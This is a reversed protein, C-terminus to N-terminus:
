PLGPRIDGIPLSGRAERWEFFNSQEAPLLPSVDRFPLHGVLSWGDATKRVFVLYWNDLRRGVNAENRSLFFVFRETIQTTAKVELYVAGRAEYISPASIDYGASDDILSIHDIGSHLDPDLRRQLCELVFNEGDLGISRLVEKEPDFKWLRRPISAMKSLVEPDGSALADILWPSSELGTVSLNGDLLQVVGAALLFDCARVHDEYGLGFEVSFTSVKRFDALSLGDASLLALTSALARTSVQKM